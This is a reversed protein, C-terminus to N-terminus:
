FWVHLQSLVEVGEPSKGGSIHSSRIQFKIDVLPLPVYNLGFTTRRIADETYQMSEDFFDIRGSVNWGQKIKWTFESYSAISRDFVLNEAVTMEGMWSLNGQNLGGFLNMMQLGDPSHTQKLFSVGIMRGMKGLTGFHEARFYISESLSSFYGKTMGLSLHADGHFHGLEVFPANKLTPLFPMGERHNGNVLKINGGRTFVTHDALKLGFSPTSAGGRIYNDKRNYRIHVGLDPQYPEWEVLVSTKELEFKMQFNGQMPFIALGNPVEGKTKSVSQIRIDGGFQIHNRVIGSYSSLQPPVKAALDDLGYAIGYDNRLGGGSPNVHCLICSSGSELAYRPIAWLGSSLFIIFLLSRYFSLLM